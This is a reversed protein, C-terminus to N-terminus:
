FIASNGLAYLQNYNVENILWRDGRRILKHRYTGYSLHHREANLSPKAIHIASVYSECVAEDGNITVSHNTIMHLTSVFKDFLQAWQNMVDKTKVVEPGPQPLEPNTETIHHMTVENTFLVGCAEWDRQDAAEVYGNVTSIIAQQNVIQQLQTEISKEM